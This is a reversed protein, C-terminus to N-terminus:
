TARSLAIGAAKTSSGWPHEEILKMPVLVPAGKDKVLSVLLKEPQTSSANRGVIHV